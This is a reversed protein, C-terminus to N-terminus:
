CIPMTSTQAAALTYITLADMATPGQTTWVQRVGAQEVEVIVQIAAKASGTNIVLGVRERIPLTRVNDASLMKDSTVM